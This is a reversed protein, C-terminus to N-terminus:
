GISAVRGLPSRQHKDKHKSQIRKIRDDTDSHYGQHKDKHKRQIRKFRDDTDNHYGQHKDKHKRQIRKFRDDTDSHYKVKQQLKELRIKEEDNLIRVAVTEEEEVAKNYLSVIYTELFQERNESSQLADLLKPNVKKNKDMVHKEVLAHFRVDVAKRTSDVLARAESTASKNAPNTLRLILTNCRHQIQQLNITQSTKERDM